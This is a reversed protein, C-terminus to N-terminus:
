FPPMSACLGVSFVCSYVTPFTANEYLSLSGPKFGPLLSMICTFMRSKHVYYLYNNLLTAVLNSNM